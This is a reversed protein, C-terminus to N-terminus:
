SCGVPTPATPCATSLWTLRPPTSIHSLLPFGRDEDLPLEGAIASVRVVVSPDQRNLKGALQRRAEVRHGGANEQLRLPHGVDM